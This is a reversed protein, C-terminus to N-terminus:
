ARQAEQYAREAQEAAAPPVHGNQTAAPVVPADIVATAAEQAGRRPVLRDLGALAGSSELAIGVALGLAFGYLVYLAAKRDITM